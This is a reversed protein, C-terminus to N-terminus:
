PTFETSPLIPQLPQNFTLQSIFIKRSKCIDMIEDDSLEWCSTVTGDSTKHAPLPLYEPQDKAYVVNSHDFEIPKMFNM